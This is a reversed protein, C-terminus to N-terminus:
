KGFGIAYYAVVSGADGTADGSDSKNILEARLGLKRAASMLVAIPGYGCVSADMGELAKFLGGTDLALIKKLAAGDRQEAVDRPLYHSFDSSAIAGTGSAGAGSKVLGAIAAGLRECKQLFEASYDVNMISVPVFDFANSGFRHQLLPLQVEVSHEQSHASGDDKLFKCSEMLRRAAKQNISVEGLPTKWAGSCMVSFQAGFGQHNPGLIVFTKAPKLSSVAWAATRGSYQYGAHPSVVGIHGPRAKAGSFLDKLQAKLNKPDHYYFM